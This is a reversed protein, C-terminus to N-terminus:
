DLYNKVWDPSPGIKVGRIIRGMYRRCLNTDIDIKLNTVSGEIPKFYQSSDKFTLGLLGAVERAMGYHSLCDHARDPLIKIEFVTDNGIQETEEVEFAGFIIKEALETPEPM